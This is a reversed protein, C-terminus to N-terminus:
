EGRYKNVISEARKIESYSKAAMLLDFAKIVDSVAKEKHDAYKNLDRLHQGRTLYDTDIPRKM